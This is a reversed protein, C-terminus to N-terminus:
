LKLHHILVCYKSLLELLYQRAHVFLVHHEPLFHDLCDLHKLVVMQRDEGILDAESQEFM